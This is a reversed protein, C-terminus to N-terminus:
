LKKDRNEILSNHVKVNKFSNKYEHKNDYNKYEDKM